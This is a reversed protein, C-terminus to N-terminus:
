VFKPPPVVAGITPQEQKILRGVVWRFQSLAADVSLPAMTFEPDSSLNQQQATIMARDEEFAKLIGAHIERTVQPRDILFNHAHGFFYHTTTETEPTLAQCGRFALAAERHSDQGGTGAPMMGSDMLLVGPVLFDYYMWRDVRAEKPYNAYKASYEPPQTNAVWKTLRVGRESREV